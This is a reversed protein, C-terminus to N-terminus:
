SRVLPSGVNALHSIIDESQYHDEFGHRVGWEYIEEDSVDDPEDRQDGFESRSRSLPPKPLRATSPRTADQSADTQPRNRNGPATSPRKDGDQRQAETEIPDSMAGVTQAGPARTGNDESRSPMIQPSRRAVVPAGSEEYHSTSAENPPNSHLQANASKRWVTSQLVARPHLQSNAIQQIDVATM